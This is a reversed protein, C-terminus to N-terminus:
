RFRENEQISERVLNPVDDQLLMDIVADLLHHFMILNFLGNAVEFFCQIPKHLENTTHELCFM